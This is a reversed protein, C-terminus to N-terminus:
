VCRGGAPSVPNANKNSRIESSFSNHHMVAYQGIWYEHCELSAALSAKSLPFSEYNVVYLRNKKTRCCRPSSRGWDQYSVM